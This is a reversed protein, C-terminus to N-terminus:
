DKGGNEKELENKMVVVNYTAFLFTFGGPSSEKLFVM